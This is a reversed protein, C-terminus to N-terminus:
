GLLSGAGDSRHGALISEALSGDPASSPAFPRGMVIAISGDPDQFGHADAGHDWAFAVVPDVAPWQATEAGPQATVDKIFRTVDDPNQPSWCGAAWGSQWEGETM